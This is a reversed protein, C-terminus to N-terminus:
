NIRNQIGKTMSYEYVVHKGLTTGFSTDKDKRIAYVIKGRKELKDIKDILQVTGIFKWFNVDTM